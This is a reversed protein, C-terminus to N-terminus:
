ERNEDNKANKGLCGGILRDLAGIWFALRSRFVFVSRAGLRGIRRKDFVM